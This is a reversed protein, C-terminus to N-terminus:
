SIWNFFITIYRRLYSKEILAKTLKDENATSKISIDISLIKLIKRTNSTHSNRSLGTMYRKLNNQSINM